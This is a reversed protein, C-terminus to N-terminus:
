WLRQEFQRIDKKGHAIQIEKYGGKKEFYGHDLVIALIFIESKEDIRKKV